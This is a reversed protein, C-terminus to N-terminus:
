GSNYGGQAPIDINMTCAKFQGHQVSLQCFLAGITYNRYIFPFPHHRMFFIESKEAAAGQEPREQFPRCFRIRSARLSHSVSLVQARKNEM